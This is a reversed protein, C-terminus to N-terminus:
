YFDPVQGYASVLAWLGGLILSHGGLLIPIKSEYARRTIEKVIPNNIKDFEYLDSYFRDATHVQGVLHGFIVRSDLIAAQSVKEMFEFTENIGLREMMTGMLSLVEGRGLRGSSRMGREESVIRFSCYCRKDLYKFLSSGVRGALFIRNREKLLGKLKKIKSTDLPLTSLYKKVESGTDPHEALVLIDAP